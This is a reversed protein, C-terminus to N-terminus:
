FSINHCISSQFNKELGCMIMCPLFINNANVYNGLIYVISGDDPQDPTIVCKM